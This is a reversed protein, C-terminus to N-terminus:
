GLRWAKLQALSTVSRRVFPLVHDQSLLLARQFVYVAIVMELVLGGLAFGNMGFGYFGVYSCVLGLGAAFMSVWPLKQHQNTSILVALSSKALVHIVMVSLMIFLFLRSVEVAGQTWWTLFLPGCMLVAVCFGVSVSLAFIFGLGHLHRMKDSDKAGYALSMEPRLASTLAAVLQVGLRTLTRVTSFMVVQQASGLQNLLVIMGQLSMVNCIPFLMFSLSPWCLEKWLSPSILSFSMKFRPYRYVMLAYILASNIVKWILMLLSVELIGWGLMVTGFIMLAELLRALTGMFVGLAYDEHCRYVAISMGGMLNLIGYIVLALLSWTLDRESLVRVQIWQQVDGVTIALFALSIMLMGILWLLSLNSEYVQRARREDGRGMAMAMENTSITTFGFDSLALYSPITMLVLWDSYSETGWHALYIPVGVM